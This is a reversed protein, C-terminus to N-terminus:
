ITKLCSTFKSVRLTSGTRVDAMRSVRRKVPFAFTLWVADLKNPSWGLFKKVEDKSVFYKVNNSSEKEKPLAGIESIFQQDDPIEGDNNDLWEQFEFGMEVRKNRFRQKDNASEGFHIGRVKRKSYGLEHLRDLAGHENTTDFVVLDPDEREIIKAVMGALRMDREAGDDGPIEQFPYIKRGRRRAIITSDGTRGQDIGIILPWSEEIEVKRKRAAYVKALDYFRGEARVFAEEPTFPYEQIFKWEQNNLSAIKKRRWALHYLTLGDSEFNEMLEREKDDLERESLPTALRYDDCWYWPIFILMYGNKGSIAGMVLDYFFGGPGNATSEFIVETGPVDAVTQMLGTSLQDANEYFAVESGHLYQM